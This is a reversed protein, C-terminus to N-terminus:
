YCREGLRRVWEAPTRARGVLGSCPQVQSNLAPCPLNGAAREYALLEEVSGGACKADYALPNAYWEQLDEPSLTTLGTRLPVALEVGADLLRRITDLDLPPRVERDAM